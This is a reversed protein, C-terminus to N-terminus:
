WLYGASFPWSMTRTREKGCNMAKDSLRNVWVIVVVIVIVIVLLNVRDRLLGNKINVSLHSGKAVM